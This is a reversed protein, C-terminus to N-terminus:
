GAGVSRGQRHRRVHRCIACQAPIRAGFVVCDWALGDSIRTVSSPIVLTTLSKCRYALYHGIRTVGEPIVLSTLRHCYAALCDGIATVPVGDIESPLVVAGVMDGEVGILTLGTDNKRTQYNM